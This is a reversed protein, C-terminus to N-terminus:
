FDEALSYTVESGSPRSWATDSPPSFRLTPCLCSTQRALASKLSNALTCDRSFLHISPQTLEDGTALSFWSIHNVCGLRQRKYCTQRYVVKSGMDKSDQAVQCGKKEAVFWGGVLVTELSLRPLAKLQKNSWETNSRRGDTRGAVSTVEGIVTPRRNIKARALHMCLFLLYLVTEQSCGRGQM